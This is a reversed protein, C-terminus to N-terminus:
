KNSVLGKALDHVKSPSRGEKYGCNLYHTLPPTDSEAVDKNKQKYFEAEFGIIDPKGGNKSPLKVLAYEGQVIENFNAGRSHLTTALDISLAQFLSVFDSFYVTVSSNYRSNYTDVSMFFYQVLHHGDGKYSKLADLDSLDVLSALKQQSCVITHYFDKNHLHAMVFETYVAQQGSKTKPTHFGHDLHALTNRAIICKRQPQLFFWGAENPVNILHYRIMIPNTVNVFQDLNKHLIDRSCYIHDDSVFCLFEDCDVPLAFDYDHKEDWEQIIDQIIRGKSIFDQATSFKRHVICGVREYKKLISLVHADSSGNDIIELNEFGFIYGYYKLWPELLQTEDKQMMVCRVRAM